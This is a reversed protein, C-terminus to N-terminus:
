LSQMKLATKRVRAIWEKTKPDLNNYIEQENFSLDLQEKGYNIVKWIVVAQRLIYRTPLTVQWIRITKDHSGSALYKGDPSYAVTKVQETHGKLTRLLKGTIADWIIVTNDNSGSVIQKGDPSFAVSNADNKHGELIKLLVNSVVDWIIVVGGACGFVM